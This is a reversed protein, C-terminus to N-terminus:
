PAQLCGYAAVPTLRPPRSHGQWRAPKRKAPAPTAVVIDGEIRAAAQKARAAVFPRMGVPQRSPNSIVIASSLPLLALMAELSTVRGSLRDVGATAAKVVAQM